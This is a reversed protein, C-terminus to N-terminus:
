MMEPFSPDILTMKWGFMQPMIQWQRPTKVFKSRQKKLNTVTEQKHLDQILKTSNDYYYKLEM